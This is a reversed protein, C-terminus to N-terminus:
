CCFLLPQSSLFPSLLVYVEHGAEYIRMFSFNGYQRVEGYEVGNVVFPAYDAAAFQEKHTYNVALSVAEGGFWNCIYDADGHYLNIRM